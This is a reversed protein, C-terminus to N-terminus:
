RASASEGGGEDPNKKTFVSKIRSLISKKPPELSSSAAPDATVSPMIGLKSEEWGGGLAKILSVAAILRQGATRVAARQTALATRNAEIVNLYPSTGAEYQTKALSAARESSDRARQLVSAQTALHKMSSLGSEVDAIASLFSHRYNALAEDHTANSRQLNFRNKGGAFLPVSISPGYNWMLSAPELLLDIDGSQFGGRGFLRISPFFEAKAAGIRATAAALAREAQAIDPRRELLDSPVGAPVAPPSALGVRPAISFGTASEGLLIAISNEIQDRQAQLASIESEVTAVETEAQALELDNGAGAQVRAKAIKLAEDRWAVAKKVISIEEDLARIRFYSAAVEAQIGLLVNHAASAAAAADARSGELKRRIKGWLDIEWGFDLPLNYAPGDYQLGNLPFASPMNESTRQREVTIPLSATPFLDSRAIRATARAQDFRAIAAKLQQNNATARSILDSLKADRFARWWEGKSLDDAPRPQRWSVAGKFAAAPNFAPRQYDPGIQAFAASALFSLSAILRMLFSRNFPPPARNADSIRLHNM